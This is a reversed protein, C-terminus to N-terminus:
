TDEMWDKAINVADIATDGFADAGVYKLVNEDIGGGGIMVKIDKYDDIDRVKEIVEKMSDYALTLFGSLALIDPKFEMLNELFKEAPVDVGLDKIEFGNTDLLFKVIDKGIDHIDGAVTGLLIKGRKSEKKGLKDLKPGLIEFIQRLIEGAMILDPLFYEKCEYRNGIEAMGEKIDKMISFLDENNEIKTRLLELTKNENLEKLNEIFESSVIVM